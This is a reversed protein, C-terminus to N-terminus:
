NLRDRKRLLGFAFILLVITLVLIHRIDFSKQSIPNDEFLEVMKKNNSNESVFTSNVDDSKDSKSFPMAKSHNNLLNSSEVNSQNHNIKTSPADSQDNLSDKLLSSEDGCDTKGNSNDADTEDDFDLRDDTVNFREFHGKFDRGYYDHLVDSYRNLM